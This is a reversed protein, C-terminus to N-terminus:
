ATDSGHGRRLHALQELLEDRDVRDVRRKNGAASPLGLDGAEDSAPERMLPDLDLVLLEAVGAGVHDPADAPLGSPARQQQVRM